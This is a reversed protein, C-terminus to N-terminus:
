GPGFLVPRLFEVARLAAGRTVLDLLGHGAGEYINADFEDEGKGAAAMAEILRHAQSVAVVQDATGHHLQVPPLRGVFYAASRRLMEIRADADSLEGRQWPQILTENLYDLGPLDRLTGALADEMIERAYGDFLDTPGAAEVVADIRTDRAATLLSVGGGRSLGLLAIREGDLEPAEELAVSLLSMTDDVDRDWPSPPGDSTFVRDEVRVPESRYSPAVYAVNGVNRLFPIILLIDNLDVGDDGGHAYVVVPLSGPDAGPPTVLLGYHRLGGVTHSLVRVRVTGALPSTVETDLEVRVESVEPARTEWEAEVRAIEAATPPAFLAGLDPAGSAAEVTVGFDQTATLGGPDTATVTVTATGEAVGTVTVASGSVSVTAVDPTDSTAAYVLADGDPDSFAGSVDVTVEAGAGVSVEAIATAMEPARNTATVTVNFSQAASLGGPDTATVTVTATGEAVGTVTVVSGSVSVTAVDPTDSTAAYVLADGDPDSFAGSVDVTVEAGAGVSVEAIATAMEPARNTATVTVNFSQAASLGGPDTATVTVTATGEAVGTVTVVSGSVSVTAVDPTDSTAAYGLADGDPDSFAGSVDVTVEAGAGVSVEAIAAAVTPSRNTGTVTVDFSQMARLGGPDTATVTVTATGAAVGMVTVESGAVSVTAVDPTNSAAEYGLMDGDPDSFAGSVDVEAAAGVDVTVEAITGASVPARNAASVTVGFSQTASRGGPDTATVTVRATGPSVGTVTVNSGSVRVTAVGEDSSAAAYGLADGDPDSFAGSVSVTEDAGAELMVELITGAAAPARNAPTPPAVPGPGGGDGGCAAAWPLLLVAALLKLRQM